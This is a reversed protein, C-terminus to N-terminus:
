KAPQGNEGLLGGVRALNIPTHGGGDHERSRQDIWGLGGRHRSSEGHETAFVVDGAEGAVFLYEFTESIAIDDIMSALDVDITTEGVILRQPSELKVCVGEPSGAVLKTIRDAAHDDIYPNRRAFEKISELERKGPDGFYKSASSALGSLNNRLDRGAQAIERRTQEELRLRQSSLYLYGLSALGLLVAAAVGASPFLRQFRM